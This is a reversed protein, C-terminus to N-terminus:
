NIKGRHANYREETIKKLYFSVAGKNTINKRGMIIASQKAKYEDMIKEEIKYLLSKCVAKSQVLIIYRVSQILQLAKFKLEAVFQESKLDLRSLLRLIINKKGYKLEVAKIIVLISATLLSSIFIVITTM